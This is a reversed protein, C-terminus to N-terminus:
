FETQALWDRLRAQVATLEDGAVIAIEQAQARSAERLTPLSLSALMAEARMGGLSSLSDLKFLTTLGVGKDAMGANITKAEIVYLHNNCLIVVDFENSVDNPLRVRVSAAADQIPLEGALVEVQRLLWWEFWGGGLFQRADFQDLRLRLDPLIQCLGTARLASILAPENPIPLRTEHEATLLSCVGNLKNILEPHDVSLHALVDAAADMQAKPRHLRRSCSVIGIGYVAFYSELTLRDEVNGDDSPLDHPPHALWHIQDSSPNVVFAPVQHGLAVEHAIASHIPNAGSLNFVYPLEGGAIIEKLRVRIPEPHWGHPIPMVSTHLNAERCVSAMYNAREIHTADALLTVNRIKFRQDLAPTILDPEPADAFAILHRHM